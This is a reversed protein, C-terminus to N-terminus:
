RTKRTEEIADSKEEPSAQIFRINVDAVKTSGGGLDFQCQVYRSNRGIATKKNYVSLVKGGIMKSKSQRGFLRTYEALSTVYMAKALVRDGNEFTKNTM